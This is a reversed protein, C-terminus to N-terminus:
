FTAIIERLRARISNMERYEKAHTMTRILNEGHIDKLKLGGLHSLESRRQQGFSQSKLHYVYSDAVVCLDWGKKRLRIALDNEEGYGIPFNVEDLYGTERLAQLRILTCFGNLFPISITEGKFTNAVLKAFTDITFGNPIHNILWNGESDLLIPISQWSAANSLPGCMAVMPNSTLAEYLPELWKSTVIVDSNILAVFENKAMKLGINASKTYGFNKSNRIVRIKPSKSIIEKLMKRTKYNSRDDILIIENILDIDHALISLIATRAHEPANYICMVISIM